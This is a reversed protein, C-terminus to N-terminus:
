SSILYVGGRAFIRFSVSEALNRYLNPHSTHVLSYLESNNSDPLVKKTEAFNHSVSKM